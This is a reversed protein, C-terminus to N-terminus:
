PERGADILVSPAIARNGAPYRLLQETAAALRWRVADFQASPWMGAALYKPQVRIAAWTERLVRRGAEVAARCAPDSSDQRQVVAQQLTYVYRADDYGERFCMWYVAPIVQGREDV